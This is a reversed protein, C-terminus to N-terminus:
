FSPVRALAITIPFVTVPNPDIGQVVGTPSDLDIQSSGFLLPGEEASPYDLTGFVVPDLIPDFLVIGYRM